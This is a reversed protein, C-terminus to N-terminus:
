PLHDALRVRIYVQAGEHIFPSAAFDIGEHRPVVLSPCGLKGIAATPGGRREGPKVPPKFALRASSLQRVKEHDNIFDM